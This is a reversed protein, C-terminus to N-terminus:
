FTEHAAFFLRWTKTTKQYRDTVFKNINERKESKKDCMIFGQENAVYPATCIHEIPQSIVENTPQNYCADTCYWRRCCCCCRRWHRWRSGSSRENISIVRTIERPRQFHSFHFYSVHFHPVLFLPHFHFFHSMFIPYMFIRSMFIRSM